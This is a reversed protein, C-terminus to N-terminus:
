ESWLWSAEGDVITGLAISFTLQHRNILVQEPHSVFNYGYYLSLWGFFNVGIQPKASFTFHRYNLNDFYGISGGVSVFSLTYHTKLEVSLAQVWPNYGLALSHTTYSSTNNGERFIGPDLTFYGGDFQNLGVNAIFYCPNKEDQKQAYSFQFGILMLFTYITRQKM